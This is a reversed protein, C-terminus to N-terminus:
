GAGTHPTRALHATEIARLKDLRRVHREEGTFRAGLFASVLEKALEPGVVRGGVCLVNMDDHEVGQRASYTDHCMAARIGPIKNAVVCAGVGSGCLLVGREAKGEAVAEAVAKAFDPYDDTAVYEHAGVDILDHGRKRLWDAIETKLALGAHDTGIVVRM